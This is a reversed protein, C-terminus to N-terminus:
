LDKGTYDGRGIYRLSSNEYVQIEEGLEVLVGVGFHHSVFKTDEIRLRNERKRWVFGLGCFHFTIMHNSFSVWIGQACFRKGFSFEFM